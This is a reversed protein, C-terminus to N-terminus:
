LEKLKDIYKKDTAYRGELFDYYDGGKYFTDQWIKYDEISEQWTRYISMSKHRGIAKTQRIRPYKMGFLNNYKLCINSTLDGTELRCQALVKDPEKIGAREIVYLVNRLNLLSRDVIAESEIISLSAMGAPAMLKICFLMVCFLIISRKM